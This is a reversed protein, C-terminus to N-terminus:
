TILSCLGHVVRSLLVDGAEPCAQAVALYLEGEAGPPLKAPYYPTVPGRYEDRREQLEALLDGEPKKKKSLVPVLTIDWYSDRSAYPIHVDRETIVINETLVRDRHRIYDAGLRTGFVASFARGALKGLTPEHISRYLTNAYIYIHKPGRTVALAVPLQDLLATLGARTFGLGTGAFEIGKLGGRALDLKEGGM